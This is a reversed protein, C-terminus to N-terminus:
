KLLLQTIGLNEIYPGYNIDKKHLLIALQFSVLKLSEM